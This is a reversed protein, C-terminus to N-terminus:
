VQFSSGCGCAKVANPNRFRFGSQILDDSYDIELGDLYSISEQDSIARFDGDHFVVRDRFVRGVMAQVDAADFPARMLGHCMARGTCFAMEEDQLHYRARPFLEHNGAHDYHMHTIVVDRVDAADVDIAALGDAVPRTITRGAM